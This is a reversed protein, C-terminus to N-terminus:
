KPLSSTQESSGSNRLLLALNKRYTPNAPALRVSERALSIALAQDHLVNIAYNAYISLVEPAPPPNAMAAHFADQMHEPAFRCDGVIMCQTMSYLAQIEQPGPRRQRLKSNLQNWWAPDEQAGLHASQILLAQVALPSAGPLAAAREFVKRSLPTFPSAPDYNSLVLYTRGLEYQTRPSRPQKAALSEVLRLPHQWEQVRLATVFGLWGIWAALLIPAVRQLAPRLFLPECAALLALFLGMSAFYNRHEFVLELPVVTATMAHAALFWALGLSVLPGRKRSAIAVMGLALLGLLAFMTTPPSLLSTSAVYDDYYFGLRGLNPLTTWDIYSWLVRPETMLRQWLTFSRFGWSSSSIFGPLVLIALMAGMALMTWHLRRLISAPRANACRWRLLSWESLTAYLPLLLASEKALVGIGTGALLGGALWIWGAEGGIQRERGHLYMWLGVLVFLNCLSEMRQVVYLVPTLNIPALAWAAAIALAMFRRSPARTPAPERQMDRLRLLILMLAYILAANLLHIIVNFAKMPEPDLGTFYANLAFSAAALPRQEGSPSSLAAKLSELDLQTMHLAHNDVINPFDDFLFGGHLGPWYIATVVALLVPLLWHRTTRQMRISTM